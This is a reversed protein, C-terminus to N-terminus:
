SVNKGYEDLVRELAMGRSAKLLVIDGPEAVEALQAAVEAHSAAMTIQSNAMGAKMAGRAADGAYEGMLFLARVPVAAALEGVEAHAAASIDGLELMDGLVAIKRGDCAMTRLTRLASAMSNPNANYADNLFTVGRCTLVQMRMPSASFRELGQKLMDLRSDAADSTDTRTSAAMRSFASVCAAAALANAVNHEGPLPLHVPTVGDPTMLDFRYNADPMARVHRATITPQAQGRLGFTILAGPVGRRMAEFFTDDAPLVAVSDPPLSRILEMKAEMIRELSHFFGFHAQAINTILGVDPQAIAALQTLEGPANMGMELVAIEHAETMNALTLPLGIHNNFSKQSKVVRFRTALMGATMDKVTTKGNSGTIGIVPIPHRQRTARAIAQLAQLPDDVHLVFPSAASPPLAAMVDGAALRNLDSVIVGGARKEFAAGMYDHGDAHDGRLAVFIEDAALARTDISFRCAREPLTDPALILRHRADFTYLTGHAAAALRHLNWNM